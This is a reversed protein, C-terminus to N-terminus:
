QIQIADMRYICIITSCTRIIGKQRKLIYIIFHSWNLLEGTYENTQTLEYALCPTCSHWISIRNTNDTSRSKAIRAWDSLWGTDTRGLALGGTERFKSHAHTRKRIIKTHPSPTKIHTTPQCQSCLSTGKPIARHPQGRTITHPASGCLTHYFLRNQNQPRRQVSRTIDVFGLPSYQTLVCVTRVNWQISFDATCTFLTFLFEGALVFATPNQTRPFILTFWNCTRARGQMWLADMRQQGGCKRDWKMQVLKM